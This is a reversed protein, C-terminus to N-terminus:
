FVENYNEEEEQKHQQQWIDQLKQDMNCMLQRAKDVIISGTILEIRKQYAEMLIEMISIKDKNETRNDNLIKYGEKIIVNFGAITKTLEFPITETIWTQIQAAAMEKLFQLDLSILSRDVVNGLAQAIEQQNLGQAALQLVRERRLTINEKTFKLCSNHNNASM